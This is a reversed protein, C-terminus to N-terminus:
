AVDSTSQLGKNSADNEKRPIEVAQESYEVVIGTGGCKPCDNRWDDDHGTLNYWVGYEKGGCCTCTYVNCMEIMATGM